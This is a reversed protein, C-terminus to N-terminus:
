LIILSIEGSAINSNVDMCENNQFLVCVTFSDGPQANPVVTTVVSVSSGASVTPSCETGLTSYGYM